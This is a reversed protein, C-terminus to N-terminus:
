RARAKTDIDEENDFRFLRSYAEYRESDSLDSLKKPARLHLHQTRKFIHKKLTNKYM